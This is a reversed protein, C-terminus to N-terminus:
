FQYFSSIVNGWGLLLLILLLDRVVLGLQIHTWNSETIAKNVTLFCQCCHEEFADTKNLKVFNQEFQDYFDKHCISNISTWTMLKSTFM